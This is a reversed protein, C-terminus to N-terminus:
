DQRRGGVDCPIPSESRDLGRINISRNGGERTLRRDEPTEQMEQRADRDWVM